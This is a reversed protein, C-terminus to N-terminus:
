RFYQAYSPISDAWALVQKAEHSFGTTRSTSDHTFRATSAPLQTSALPRVERHGFEFNTQTARSFFSPIDGAPEQRTGKYNTAWTQLLQLATQTSDARKGLIRLLAVARSFEDPCTCPTSTRRLHNNAQGTASDITPVSNSVEFYASSAHNQTDGANPTREQGSPM